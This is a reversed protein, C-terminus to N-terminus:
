IRIMASVGRIAGAIAQLEEARTKRTSALWPPHVEEALDSLRLRAYGPVAEVHQLWFTLKTATREDIERAIFQHINEIYSQLESCLEASHTGEAINNGIASVCDAVRGLLDALRQRARDDGRLKLYSTVLDALAKPLSVLFDM